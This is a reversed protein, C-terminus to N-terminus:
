KCTIFSSTNRPMTYQSNAPAPSLLRQVGAYGTAGVVLVVMLMLSCAALVYSYFQLEPARVARDKQANVQNLNGKPHFAGARFYIGASPAIWWDPLPL